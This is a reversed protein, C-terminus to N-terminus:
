QAPGASHRGHALLSRDDDPPVGYAAVAAESTVYGQRVDELVSVRPRDALPGFGGGGPTELTGRSGPLLAMVATSLPEDDVTIRGLAGPEGGMHGAAPRRMLPRYFTFNVPDRTPNFLTIRQGLGGRHRGPGGSDPRLAKEEVLLEIEHEFREVSTHYAKIPFFKANPGDRQAAAGLGGAQFFSAITRRRTRSDQRDALLMWRIGSGATVQDPALPALLALIHDPLLHTIMARIDVPAPRLANMVSGPPAVIEIPKTAGENSPVDPLLLAQIPYLTLSRTCNLVCNVGARMTQPSSGAYDFKMSDGDITIVTNILIDEDGLGFEALTQHAYQGNPLAAIKARMASEVRAQLTTSLAALDEIEYEDLFAILLRAGVANGAVQAMVDGHVLEWVRVNTRLIKLLDDNLVGEDFLRLVPLCIGEEYVETADHSGFRGGIDSVHIVRGSFAVLQRGHFVPTAVHIDPLHGAALWPDNTVFVDGPRMQDAGIEALMNKVCAGPAAGASEPGVKLLDLGDISAISGGGAGIEIMNITPTAIPLGSGPKFRETRATEFDSTILPEGEDILCVKATTGGMDFSVVRSRGMRQSYDAAALAGAAPGSEILTVPWRRATPASLTGGNSGMLLLRGGSLWSDLEAVYRDVLPQVYANAATTSFREFEGLRSLVDSSLSISLEPFEHGALARVKLEHDPNAYSHLFCVAVARVNEMSLRALGNRVEEENLPELEVGRHDIRGSVEERLRREILPQPFTLFLDYIDYRTGHGIELIDRFGRTTLMGTPSGNREIIANTVLTTGHIGLEIADPRTGSKALLTEIGRKAGVAPESPTSLLKEIQVTGDEHAVVIDTFTGGVDFGIRLAVTTKLRADASMLRRRPVPLLDRQAMDQQQM